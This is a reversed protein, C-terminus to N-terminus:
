RENMQKWIKNNLINQKAPFLINFQWSHFPGYHMLMQKKSSPISRGPMHSQRHKATQEPLSSGM